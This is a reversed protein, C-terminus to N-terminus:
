FLTLIKIIFSFYDSSYVKKLINAIKDWGKPHKSVRIIFSSNM